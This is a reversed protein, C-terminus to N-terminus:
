RRASRAKAARILLCRGMQWCWGRRERLPSIIGFIKCGPMTQMVQPPLELGGAPMKGFGIAGGDSINFPPNALIFDGRLDPLENKHFSGESNWRINSDIGRVALNM